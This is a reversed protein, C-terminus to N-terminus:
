CKLFQQSICYTCIWYSFLHILCVLSLSLMQPIGLSIATFICLFFNVFLVRSLFRNAYTRIILLLDFSKIYILSKSAQKYIVFYVCMLSWGSSSVDSNKVIDYQVNRAASAACIVPLDNHKYQIEDSECSSTALEVGWRNWQRPIAQLLVTWVM